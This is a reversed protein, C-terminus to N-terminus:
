LFLEDLECRDSPMESHLPVSVNAFISRHRVPATPSLATRPNLDMYALCALVDAAEELRNMTFREEFCRGTCEDELNCQRAITQCLWRVAVARDSM